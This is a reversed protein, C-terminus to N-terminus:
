GGAALKDKRWIRDQRPVTTYQIPWKEFPQYELEQAAHLMWYPDRLVQRGLAVLDADERELIGNVEDVTNINGVCIATIGAEHKIRRAFPVYGLPAPRAVPTWKAAGGSSVAVYDADHEKFARSIEVADDDTNGGEVLDSASIRVGIPFNDPLDARISDFVKLPFRLRGSLEGGYEDNRQNGIPSIFSSLLYGHACHYEIADFGAAVANLAARRFDEHVEDMLAQDMQTPVQNDDGYPIASPAIIEWSGEPLPDDQGHFMRKTSGRRGSHCIQVGIKAHTHEHVFKTVRRWATVQDDRYLGACGPTIRGSESVGTGEAVVYGAGGMARTGYHVLHWDTPCGDVASYMDMPSVVVRNELTLGRLQYPEFLPPTGNTEPM